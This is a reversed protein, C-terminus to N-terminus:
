MLGVESTFQNEKIWLLVEDDDPFYEINDIMLGNWIKESIEKFKSFYENKYLLIENRFHLSSLYTYQDREITEVALKKEKERILNLHPMINVKLNEENMRKAQIISKINEGNKNYVTAFVCETNLYIHFITKDDFEIIIEANVNDNYFYVISRLDVKYADVNVNFGFINKPLNLSENANRYIRNKFVKNSVVSVIRLAEIITSKGANNEGVILTENKFVVTYDEFCRYNKLTMKKIM